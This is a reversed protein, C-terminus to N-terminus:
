DITVKKIKSNIIKKDRLVWPAITEGPTEGVWQLEDVDWHLNPEETSEYACVGAASYRRDALFRYIDREDMEENNPYSYDWEFGKDMQSCLSEYDDALITLMVGDEQYVFFQSVCLVSVTSPYQSSHRLFYRASLRPDVKGLQCSLAETLGTAEAEMLEIQGLIGEIREVADLYEQSETVQKIQESINM